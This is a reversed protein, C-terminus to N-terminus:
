SLELKFEVVDKIIIAIHNIRKEIETRSCNVYLSYEDDIPFYFKTRESEIENSLEIWKTITSDNLFLARHHECSLKAYEILAWKSSTATLEGFMSSNVTVTRKKQGLSKLNVNEDAYVDISATPESIAISKSKKSRAKRAFINLGIDNNLMSEVTSLLNEAQGRQYPGIYSSNGTDKNDINFGSESFQRILRSELYDLQSKDLHGDVRSFFIVQDWWDKNKDHSNVRSWVSSSAQGVYRQDDGILIYIGARGAEPINKLINLDSRESIVLVSPDETYVRVSDPTLGEDWLIM